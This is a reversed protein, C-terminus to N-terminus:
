AKRWDTQDWNGKGANCDSCLIQLNDLVSSTHKNGEFINFNDKYLVIERSELLKIKDYSDFFHM